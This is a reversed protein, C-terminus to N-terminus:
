ANMNMRKHEVCNANMTLLFQLQSKAKEKIILMHMKVPAIKNIAYIHPYKELIKWQKQFPLIHTEKHVQKNTQENTQKNEMM